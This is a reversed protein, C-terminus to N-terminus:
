RYLMALYCISSDANAPLFFKPKQWSNCESIKKNPEQPLRYFRSLSGVVRMREDIRVVHRILEVSSAYFM